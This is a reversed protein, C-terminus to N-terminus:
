ETPRTVPLGIGIVGRARTADRRFRHLEAPRGRGTAQTQGTAEVIGAQMLMRRFNQKHLRMGVLAEVVRQLQFLTFEAPLLEFVVPRYALKGRLRALAAALIRRDDRALLTGLRNAISWNEDTPPSPERREARARESRDRLAEAVLGAEYLLEYRELALVPDRKAGTGLGFCLGIREERGERIGSDVASEVWRHLAPCIVEDLVPPRGERWDEWPLYGYWDRWVAPGANTVLHEDALALYAVTLLRPGGRLEGPDRYRNGFTYLQEVYRVEFGTQARVWGRVGRDLSSHEAPDFPGSPLSDADSASGAHPRVLLVRPVEDTVAVIVAALGVSTGALTMVCDVM